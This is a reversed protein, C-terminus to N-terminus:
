GLPPPLGACFNGRIVGSILEAFGRWYIRRNGSRTKLSTSSPSRSGLAESTGRTPIQSVPTEDRESGCTQAAAIRKARRSGGATHIYFIFVCVCM